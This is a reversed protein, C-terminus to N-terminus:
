RQAKINREREGRERKGEKERERERVHSNTQSSLPRKLDQKSSDFKEYEPEKKMRGRRERV